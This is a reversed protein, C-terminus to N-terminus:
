FPVDDGIPDPNSARSLSRGRITWEGGATREMFKRLRNYNSTLYGSGHLQDSNHFADAIQTVQVDTLKRVQANMLDFRSKADTWSPAEVFSNVLVEQLRGERKLAAGILPFLKKAADISKDPDGRVAQVESVFGPPDKSGLKLSIIPVDRGMAYGVEQHCYWSDAFDDTLFLLMLEMSRLGKIIESRWLKMPQITDHAVFCSMGYEELADSLERAQIKHSDRHSIFVRAFGPKWFSLADPNIPPNPSFATAQAFEPDSEDSLEFRVKNFFEDEFALACKNLKGAIAEAIEELDDIDIRGLQELPLFLVVDHFYQGGNWSDYHTDEVLLYHSHAIIEGLMDGKASYATQLRVLYQPLKSSLVTAM